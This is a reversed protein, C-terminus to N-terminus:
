FSSESSDDDSLQQELQKKKELERMNDEWEAKRAAEELAYVDENSPYLSNWDNSM